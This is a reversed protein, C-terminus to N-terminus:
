PSYLWPEKLDFFEPAGDSLSDMEEMQAKIGPPPEKTEGERADDESTFYIVMTYAGGEHGIAVTGLIDPRFTQWDMSDDTMMERAREPNTTRGRMVQVFGATDLDGVVAVDVEESDQFTPEDSFLKSTESWWQSQEPRDSNRQAADASEFRATAIFRGDETVGATSGLWGTAGPALDNVWRELAAKGAGADSISGQIVQVFMADEERRDRRDRPSSGILVTPRGHVVRGRVDLWGVREVITVAAPGDRNAAPM